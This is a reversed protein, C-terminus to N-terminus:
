KWFMHFSYNKTDIKRRSICKDVTLGLCKAVCNQNLVPTVQWCERSQSRHWARPMSSSRSLWQSLLSLMPTSSPLVCMDPAMVKSGATSQSTSDMSSSELSSLGTAVCMCHFDIWQVVTMKAYSVCVLFMLLAYLCSDVTFNCHLDKNEVQM